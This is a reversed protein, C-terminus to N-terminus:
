PAAVALVSNSITVFMVGKTVSPATVDVGMMAPRRADAGMFGTSKGKDAIRLQDVGFNALLAVFLAL